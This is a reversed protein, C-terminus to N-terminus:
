WPRARRASIAVRDPLGRIPRSPALQCDRTPTRPRIAGCTRPSSRSGSRSAPSRWRRGSRRGAIAGPRARSRVGAAAAARLVRLGRVCRGLDQARCAGRLQDAPSLRALGAPPRRAAGDPHRRRAPLRPRRPDPHTNAWPRINLRDFWVELKAGNSAEVTTYNAAQPKTSSRSAWTPRPAGRSRSAHRHRRHRVDRRHLDADLEQMPAQSSRGPRRSSASGMHEPLYTSVADHPVQPQDTAPPSLSSIRHVRHHLLHLLNMQSSSVDARHQLSRQPRTAACQDSRQRRTAGRRPAPSSHGLRGIRKMTGNGAPPEVSTPRARSRSYAPARARGAPRISFLDPPSPLTPMSAAAFLRARRSCPAPSCRGPSSRQRVDNLDVEIREVVQHRHDLERALRHHERNM